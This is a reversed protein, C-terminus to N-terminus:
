INPGQTQPVKVSRRAWFPQFKKKLKPSKQYVIVFVILGFLVLGCVVSTLIIWWLDCTLGNVGLIVSVSDKTSNTSITVEKCNSSQKLRVPIRRLNLNCNLGQGLLNYIGEHNNQTYITEIDGNSLEILIELSGNSSDIVCQSVSLVPNGGNQTSGTLGTVTLKPTITSNTISFNLNGIINTPGSITLNPTIISGYSTWFGNVCQFNNSPMSGICPPIPAVPSPYWLTIDGYTCNNWNQSCSINSSVGYEVSQSSVNCSSSNLDISGQSISWGECISINNKELLRRLDM